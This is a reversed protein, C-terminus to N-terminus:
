NRDWRRKAEAEADQPTKAQGEFPTAFAQALQKMIHGITVFPADAPEPAAGGASKLSLDVHRAEERLAGVTSKERPRHAFPDFRFHRMANGHTIADIEDDPVGAGEFSKM